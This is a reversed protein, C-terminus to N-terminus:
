ESAESAMLRYWDVKRTFFMVAALAAFLAIAGVVLATQELQLLVFLLGYLVTVGLGFPLGRWLGRLMYCGYYALLSVCAGAAVLYALNFAMHESLSLLLLFFISISSGVFFYQVPHVRLQQMVEFLGVAAFTLIVFLLGYKTARDSLTYPNVPDIFSVKITELCNGGKDMGDDADARCTALGKRLSEGVSSALSSIRWTADFGQATIHRDAPLFNGGFSPHRWNSSLQVQTTEALPIISLADVGFLELDFDVTLPESAQRVNEPLTGHVGRIYTPHTTGARLNMAQGNLKVNATRIGNSDTVALMLVPASCALRSNKKQAAAKLSDLSSWKAAMQVKLSFANVRHLGRARQEIEAGSKMVLSEPLSTMGFEKRREVTKIEAAEKVQEDWSEICTAYIIPGTITQQSGVSAIAKNRHLQRDSVVGQIMNLAVMLVIIVVGLAAMKMAFYSKM